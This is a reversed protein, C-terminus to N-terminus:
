ELGELKCISFTLEHNLLLGLGTLMFQQIEMAVQTTYNEYKDGQTM